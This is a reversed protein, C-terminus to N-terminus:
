NIAATWASPVHQTPPVTHCPCVAMRMLTDDHAVVSSSTSRLRAAITRTASSTRRALAFPHQNKCHFWTPRGERVGQEHRDVLESM